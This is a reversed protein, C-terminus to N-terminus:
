AHMCAHMCLRAAGGQRLRGAALFHYQPNVQTAVQARRWDNFQTLSLTLKYHPLLGSSRVLLLCMFAVPTMGRCNRPFTCCSPQQRAALEAAEIENYTTRGGDELDETWRGGSGLRDRPLQASQQGDNEGVSGLSLAAPSGSDGGAQLSGAAGWGDSSSGRMM